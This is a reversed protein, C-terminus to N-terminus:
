NDLLYHRCCEPSSGHVKTGDLHQYYRTNVEWFKVTLFLNIILLVLCTILPKKKTFSTM